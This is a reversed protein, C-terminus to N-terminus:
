ITIWTLTQSNWKKTFDNAQLWSDVIRGDPLEHVWRVEQMKDVSVGPMYALWHTGKGDLVDQQERRDYLAYRNKM